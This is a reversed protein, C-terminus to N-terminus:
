RMSATPAPRRLTRRWGSRDNVNRLIYAKTMAEPWKDPEWAKRWDDFTGPKLKRVTLAAFV